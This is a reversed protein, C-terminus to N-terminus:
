RQKIWPQLFISWYAVATKLCPKPPTKTTKNRSNEYDKSSISANRDPVMNEAILRTEIFGLSLEKIEEEGLLQVLAQLSQEVAERLPALAEIPFGGEALVGAMRQKREAQSFRKRAQTLWRQREEQRQRDQVPSQHLTRSSKNNLSLVGAEILRQITAYTNRDLVELQTNPDQTDVAQKLVNDSSEDVRDVVAIM